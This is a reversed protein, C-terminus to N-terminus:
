AELNSLLARQYWQKEEICLFGFDLAIPKSKNQSFNMVSTGIPLSFHIEPRVYLHMEDIISQEILLSNTKPGSEVLCSYEGNQRLVDQFHAKSFQKMGWDVEIINVSKKFELSEICKTNKRDVIWYIKRSSDSLIRMKDLGDKEFHRYASLNLDFVYVNPSVREKEGFSERVNLLPNDLILTQSGTFLCDYEQRLMYTMSKFAKHSIGGVGYRPHVMCGDLTMAWKSAIWFQKGRKRAIYSALMLQTLHSWYNSAKEVEISAEKLKFLGQGSVREDPDEIFYVVKKIGHQIILDACPPTKGLHSCPELTVYITASSLESRFESDLCKSIANKEAHPGGFYMHAGYGILKMSKSVIVCGVMPNEKVNGRGLWALQFAIECANEESIESGLALLERPPFLHEFKMNEIM